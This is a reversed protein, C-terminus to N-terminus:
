NKPHNAENFYGRILNCINKVQDDTLDPYSPLNIGRQSLYTANKFVVGDKYMPLTNIPFFVPRTEIGNDSLIKRVKSRTASNDFILSIMWFTGYVDKPEDLLKIPLDALYKKYLEALKRKRDIFSPARSLQALGIAACINTMRYNYGIIDHWYETNKALGQGKIRVALDIIKKSNSVVMGGEGTTITKNGFFSFAAIDGFTGVYKDKFKTGFAEACDEVVKLKHARAISMIKDMDCAMGYIHVVMIARTKSTIKRELDEPDLQWTDMLSDIFVPKAGIYQIANVSAVYTLAPVIVEDGEKIGIALLALHLAVTGNSVTAAYKSGIFKAFEAEFLGIYKGKSSIWSSDLCDLVNEKEKSGISPQYVPIKNM